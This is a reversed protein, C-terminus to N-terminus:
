LVGLRNQVLEPFRPCNSNWVECRKFNKLDINKQAHGCPDPQVNGSGSSFDPSSWQWGERLNQLVVATASFVFFSKFFCFAKLYKKNEFKLTTLM